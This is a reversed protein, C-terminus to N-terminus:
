LLMDLRLARLDPLLVDPRSASLDARACIGTAVAVSQIGNLRAAEVDNPHDGILSIRTHHRVWGARQADDIAIRVLGARTESMEAFAGFQFHEEIGARRMKNWAIRTLNGTVLGVPVRRRKLSSLVGRVGPCLNRQLDPCIRVYIAQAAEVIEAM